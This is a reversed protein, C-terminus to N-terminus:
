RICEPFSLMFAFAIISVSYFFSLYLKSIYTNFAVYLYYSESKFTFVTVYFWILTQNDINLVFVKLILLAVFITSFGGKVNLLLM